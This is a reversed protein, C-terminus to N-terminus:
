FFGVGVGLRPGTNTLITEYGGSIGAPFWAAEVMLSVTEAVDARFTLGAGGVLSSHDGVNGISRVGVEAAVWPTLRLGKGLAAHYGCGLQAGAEVVTTTLGDAANFNLIGARVTGLVAVGQGYFVRAGLTPMVVTSEGNFAFPRDPVVGATLLHVGGLLDVRLSVDRAVPLPPAPRPEAVAVVPPAPRAPPPSRPTAAALPLGHFTRFRYTPASDSGSPTEEELLKQADLPPPGLLGRYKEAFAATDFTAEYGEAADVGNPLLPQKPRAALGVFQRALNAVVEPAPPAKPAVAEVASIDTPRPVEGEGAAIALETDVALWLTGGQSGGVWAKSERAGVLVGDFTSRDVTLLDADDVAIFQGPREELLPLDQLRPPTRFMGALDGPFVFRTKVAQARAAPPLAVGTSFEFRQDPSIRPLGQGDSYGWADGDLRPSALSPWVLDRAALALVERTGSAGGQHTDRLSLTFTRGDDQCRQSVYVWTELSGTAGPVMEAVVVPAAVPLALCGGTADLLASTSFWPRPSRNELGLRLHVWEGGDVRGNGAGPGGVDALLYSEELDVVIDRTGGPDSSLQTLKTGQRPSPSAPAAEERAAPVLARRVGALAEAPSAAPSTGASGPLGLWSSILKLATDRSTLERALAEVAERRALSFTGEAPLAQVRARVYKKLQDKLEQVNERPVNGGFLDPLAEQLTGGLATLCAAQLEESNNTDARAVSRNVEDLLARVRAVDPPVSSVYSLLALALVM